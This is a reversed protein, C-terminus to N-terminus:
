VGRKRASGRNKDGESKIGFVLLETERVRRNRIKEEEKKVTIGERMM